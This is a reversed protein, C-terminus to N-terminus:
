GGHGGHEGIAQITEHQPQKRNGVNNGITNTSASNHEVHNTNPIIRVTTARRTSM